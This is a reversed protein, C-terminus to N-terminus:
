DISGVRVGEFERKRDIEEGEEENNDEYERKRGKWEMKSKNM